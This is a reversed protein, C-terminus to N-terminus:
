LDKITLYLLDKKKKKINTEMIKAGEYNNCVIISM